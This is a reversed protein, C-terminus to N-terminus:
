SEINNLQRWIELQDDEVPVEPEHVPKENALYLHIATALCKDDGDQVKQFLTQKLFAKGKLAGVSLSKKEKPSLNKGLVAEVEEPFCQIYGLKEVDALLDPTKKRGMKSLTAKTQM